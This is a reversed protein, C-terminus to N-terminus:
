IRNAWAEEDGQVLRDMWRRKKRDVKLRAGVRGVLEEPSVGLEMAALKMIDCMIDSAETLNWTSKGRRRTSRTNVGFPFVEWELLSDADEPSEAAPLTIEEAEEPALAGEADTEGSQDASFGIRSITSGVLRNGEQVM